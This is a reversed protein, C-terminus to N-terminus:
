TGNNSIPHVIGKDRTTRVNDLVLRTYLAYKRDLYVYSDNYMYYLLTKADNTNYKIQWKRGTGFDQLHGQINLIANLKKYLKDIFEFSGCAFTAYITATLSNKNSFSECISGDGDFYGRVFHRFMENPINPLKAVLTKNPVINFNLDLVECMNIDTFEFSCRNYTSTNSSIKHTSNLFDKFKELHGIDDYKLMLRIRGKSDVNGDAMLFGAWYCSEETYEDFANNNGISPKKTGWGNASILKKLKWEPIELSNAISARSLNQNKLELYKQLTIEM